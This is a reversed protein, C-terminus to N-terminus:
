SDPSHVPVIRCFYGHFRYERGVGRRDRVIDENRDFDSYTLIKNDCSYITSIREM